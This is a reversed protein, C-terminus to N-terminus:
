HQTLKQQGAFHGLKLRMGIIRGGQWTSIQNSVRTRSSLAWLWSGYSDGWGGKGKAEWKVDPTHPALLFSVNDGRTHSHQPPQQIRQFPNQPKEFASQGNTKKQHLFCELLWGSQFNSTQMQGRRRRNVVGDLADWSCERAKPTNWKCTGLRLPELFIAWTWGSGASPFNGHGQQNGKPMWGWWRGGMKGVGQWCQANQQNM